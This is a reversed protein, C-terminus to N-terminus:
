IVTYIYFWLITIQQSNHYFNTSWLYFCFLLPRIISRQPIGNHHNAVTFLSNFLNIFSKTWCVCSIHLVSLVCRHGTDKFFVNISYFSNVNHVEGLPVNHKSSLGCTLVTETHKPNNFLTLVSGVTLSLIDM